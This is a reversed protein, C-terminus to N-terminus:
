NKEIFAIDSVYRGNEIMIGKHVNIKKINKFFFEQKTKSILKSEFNIKDKLFSLIEDFYPENKEVDDLENYYEPHKYDEVIYIGGKNLLEFFFIFNNIIDSLLHSGDDIIIDFSSCNKDVLFKKFSMLDEQSQTNCNFYNVRKSKFIFKYNRDICFLNANKFYFYFSAVSAGKWTGIELLNIKKDKFIHLYKEYFKGFDHGLFEKSSKSYPNIVKSGKDTGFYNFLDDITKFNINLKDLNKKPKLNFIFNKYLLSLKKM